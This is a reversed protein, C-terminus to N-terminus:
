PALNDLATQFFEVRGALNAIKDSATLLAAQCKENELKRDLECKQHLARVQDLERHISDQFAKQAADLNGERTEIRRAEREAATEVNPVRRAILDKVTDKAMAGITGAGFIGLVLVPWETAM